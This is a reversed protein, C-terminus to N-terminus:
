AYLEEASMPVSRNSLDLMITRLTWREGCNDCAARALAAPLVDAAVRIKASKLCSCEFVRWRNKRRVELERELSEQLDALESRIESRAVKARVAGPTCLSDLLELVDREPPREHFIGAEWLAEGLEDVTLGRKGFYAMRAKPNEFMTVLEGRYRPDLRVRRKHILRSAERIDDCVLPMM